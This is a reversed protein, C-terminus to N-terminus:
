ATEQLFWTRGSTAPATVACDGHMWSVVPRAAGPMDSASFRALLLPATLAQNIAREMTFAAEFGVAAAAGAIAPTVATPGGYPYSLLTVPTDVIAELHARSQRYEETARAVGAPALPRHTHAHSGVTHRATLARLQGPSMYLERCFAAEDREASFVAGIIAECEEFSLVHNILFKLRRQAPADYQYQRTAAADDVSEQSFGIGLRSAAERLDREFLAFPRTSQLWHTKHVALATGALPRSCCFFVAPIGLSDLVPVAHEYQEALGDDFTIICARAPLAGAGRVAHLLDGGSIFAVHRSLAELQARFDAVTIPHVGGHESAGAPRVYHYNVAILV